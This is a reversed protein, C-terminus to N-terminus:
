WQVADFIFSLEGWAAAEIRFHEHGLRRRQVAMQEVRLLAASM